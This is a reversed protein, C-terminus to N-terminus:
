PPLELAVAGLKGTRFDHLVRQATRQQDGCDLQHALHYLYNMGSPPLVSSYSLGYRAQLDVGRNHWLELGRSAVLVPDYSASGIDDCIALKIAQEQDPLHPPIVGPTDLLEIQPSIRVWRLQRTVGPRNASAVVRRKLLRNILASKGVNPFGVVVMRVPRDLMGRQRRRQNVQVATTQVAQMIEEVGRGTRGDTFIATLHQQNLYKQWAQQDAPAIMDMRNCIVLHQKGQAWRSVEPHGSAVLIRADRVELVVDVRKLQTQLEQEAKAIHGPYWQIQM